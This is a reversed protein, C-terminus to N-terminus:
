SFDDLLASPDIQAKKYGLEADALQGYYASMDIKEHGLLRRLSELDGGNLLYNKAFTARFAHVLRAVESRIAAQEARRNIIQHLGYITLPGRKGYWLAPADDSRTNLYARVAATAREGLWNPREKNGKGVVTFHGDAWDIADRRMSCFESARLGTDLLVIVIARDRADCVALLRRIQEKSYSAPRRKPTKPGLTAAPNADLWGESVLWSCFITVSRFMGAVTIPKIRQRQLYDLYGRLVPRSIPRDALWTTFRALHRRYLDVTGPSLNAQAKAKLFEDVLEATITTSM